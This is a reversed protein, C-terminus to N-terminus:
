GGYCAAGEAVYDLDHLDEVNKSIKPPDPFDPMTSSWLRVVMPLTDSRRIGQLVGELKARRGPDSISDITISKCLNLIWILRWANSADQAYGELLECIRDIVQADDSLLTEFQNDPPHAYGQKNSFLARVRMRRIAAMLMRAFGQNLYEEPALLIRTVQTHMDEAPFVGPQIAADIYQTKETTGDQLRSVVELYETGTGLKLKAENIEFGFERLRPRLATLQTELVSTSPGFLRYDDVFRVFDPNVSRVARDVESLYTNGLFFMGDNLFPFGNGAPSLDALMKELLRLASVDGCKERVFDFVNQQKINRFAEKIDIQLVCENASCRQQTFAHFRSWAQVQNELFALRTPNTNLLVGFVRERDLVKQDLEQAFSSVCAQCIIQDNISPVIWTNNGGSRKPVSVELARRANAGKEYLDIEQRIRRERASYDIALTEFWPPLANSYSVSDLLLRIALEVPLRTQAAAAM